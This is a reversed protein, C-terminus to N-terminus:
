RAHVYAYTDTIKQWQLDRVCVSVFLGCFIKTALAWAFSKSLGFLFVGIITSALGFLVVPKRGIRDSLSGWPM